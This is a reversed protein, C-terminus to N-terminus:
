SLAPECEHEFLGNLRNVPADNSGLETNPTRKKGGPKGGAVAQRRKRGQPAPPPAAAAAPRRAATERYKELVLLTRRFETMLRAVGGLYCAAAAPDKSASGGVHLRGIALDAQLLQRLLMEELVDGSAGARKLFDDLYVKFTHVDHIPGGASRFAGHLFAAGAIARVHEAKEQPTPPAPAGAQRREEEAQRGTEMGQIAM